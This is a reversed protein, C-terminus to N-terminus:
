VLFEAKPNSSQLQPAHEEAGCRAGCHAGCRAEASARTTKAGLSTQERVLGPFPSVRVTDRKSTSTIPTALRLTSLYAGARLFSNLPLPQSSSAINIMQEHHRVPMGRILRERPKVSTTPRFPGSCETERARCGVYLHRVPSHSILQLNYGPGVRQIDVVIFFPFSGALWLVFSTQVNAM